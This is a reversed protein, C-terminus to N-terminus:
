VVSSAGWGHDESIYGYPMALRQKSRDGVCMGISRGPRLASAEGRGFDRRRVRVVSVRMASRSAREEEIDFWLLSVPEISAFRFRRVRERIRGREGRFAAFFALAATRLSCRVRSCMRLRVDCRPETISGCKSCM